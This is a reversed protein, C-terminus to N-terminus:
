EKWIHNYPHFIRFGNKKKLEKDILTKSIEVGRANLPTMGRIERKIGRQQFWWVGLDKKYIPINFIKAYTPIKYELMGVKKNKIASWKKFFIRPFIQVIFLSCLLKKTYGYEEAILKKFALYNKREKSGKKTWNWRTEISYDLTRIGSIFFDNKKLKSFQKKIPGLVLADWQIIIVSDWKLMKGRKDYWDLIVLDGNIWKWDSSKNHKSSLYFDDLYESLRKKYKSSYKKDGGYLGFIPLEPNYKKLLKLRNECVEPNKYFWFIIALNM